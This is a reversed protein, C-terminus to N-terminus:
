HRISIENLKDLWDLVRQDDLLEANEMQKYLEEIYQISQELKEELCNDLLM